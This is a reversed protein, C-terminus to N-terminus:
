LMNWSLTMTLCLLILWKFSKGSGSWVDPHLEPAMGLWRFSGLMLFPLSQNKLMSWSLSTTLCLLILWKFSKGSGELCRPPTRPGDGDGHPAGVDALGPVSKLAFKIFCFYNPMTLNSTQFKKRAVGSMQTSNQPWGWGWPPGWFWCPWPRIRSCM